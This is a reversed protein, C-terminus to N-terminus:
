FLATPTLAPASQAQFSSLATRLVATFLASASLPPLTRARSTSKRALPHRPAQPFPNTLAFLRSVLPSLLFVAPFVAFYPLFIARFCLLIIVFPVMITLFYLLTAGPTPSNARSSNPSDDDADGRGSLIDIEEDTDHEEAGSGDAPAPSSSRGGAAADSYKSKHREAEKQITRVALKELRDASKAYLTDPPNFTKCNTCILEVDAQFQEFSTYQGKNLKKEITSFDM